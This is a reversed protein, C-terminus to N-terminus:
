DRNNREHEVPDQELFVFAHVGFQLTRLRVDTLDKPPRVELEVLLREVTPPVYGALKGVLRDHGGLEPREVLLVARAHHLALGFDNIHARQTPFPISAFSSM